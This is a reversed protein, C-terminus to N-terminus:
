ICPPKPPMSDIRTAPPSSCARATAAAARTNLRAVDRPPTSLRISCRSSCRLGTRARAPPDTAITLRGPSAPPGVPRGSPQARHTLAHGRRRARPLPEASLPRRGLERRRHLVHHFAAHRRQDDRAAALYSQDRDIVADDGQLGLPEGPATRGASACTFDSSRAATASTVSTRSIQGPSATGASASESEAAMDSRTCAMRSASILGATAM